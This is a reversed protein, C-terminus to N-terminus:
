HKETVTKKDINKISTKSCHKRANSELIKSYIKSLTKQFM